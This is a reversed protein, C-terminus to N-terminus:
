GKVKALYRLGKTILYVSSVAFLSVKLVVLGGIFSGIGIAGITIGSTLTLMGKLENNKVVKKLKKSNTCINRNITKTTTKYALKLDKKLNGEKKPIREM